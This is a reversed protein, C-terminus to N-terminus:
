DKVYCHPDVYTPRPRVGKAALDNIYLVKMILGALIKNLWSAANVEFVYPKHDYGIGVDAGGVDLGIARTALVAAAEAKDNHSPKRKRWEWGVESGRLHEDADDKYKVKRMIAVVTSGAVIIRYEDKIPVYEQCLYGYVPEAKNSFYIGKSKMGYLPKYIFAYKNDTVTGMCALPPSLNVLALTDHTKRKNVAIAVSEFSNYLPKPIFVGDPKSSYGYNLTGSLPFEISARRLMRCLHRFPGIVKM